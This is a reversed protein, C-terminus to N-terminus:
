FLSRRPTHKIQCMAPARAPCNCSSSNSQISGLLYGRQGHMRGLEDVTPRIVKLGDGELDNHFVRYVAMEAGCFTLMGTPRRQIDSFLESLAFFAASYPSETWDLLPTILGFHRGLAWWQETNLPAPNSGRLGATARKFACLYWDRLNQLSGPECLKKGGERVYRGDYPYIKSPRPLGKIEQGGFGDLIIREFPFALSWPPDKQGRWYVPM